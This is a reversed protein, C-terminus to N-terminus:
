LVTGAPLMEALPYFNLVYLLIISPLSKLGKNRVCYFTSIHLIKPIVTQATIEIADNYRRRDLCSSHSADADWDTHHIKKKMELTWHVVTVFPHHHTIRNHRFKSEEGMAISTLWRSLFLQSRKHRSSSHVIRHVIISGLPNQFPSRELSAYM